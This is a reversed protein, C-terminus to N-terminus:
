RVAPLRGAPAEPDVHACALGTQLTASRGRVLGTVAPVLRLTGPALAERFVTVGVIVSAALTASHIGALAPALAGSKLAVQQLAFGAVGTVVFLYLPWDAFLAGVRSPRPVELGALHSRCGTHRYRDWRDVM